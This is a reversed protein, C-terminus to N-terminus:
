IGYGGRPQWSPLRGLRPSSPCMARNTAWALWRASVQSPIFIRETDIDYGLRALQDAFYDEILVAEEGEVDVVAQRELIVRQAEAPEPLRQLVDWEWSAWRTFSALPVVPGRLIGIIDALIERQHERIYAETEEKWTASRKPKRVKIIISRQAMDTSLSAGNLTIFWTLTNPAHRRWLVDSPRAAKVEM